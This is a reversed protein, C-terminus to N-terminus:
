HEFGENGRPNRTINDEATPVSSVQGLTSTLSPKAESSTNEGTNTPTNKTPRTKEEERQPHQPPVFSGNPVFSNDMALSKNEDFMKPMRIEPGKEGHPRPSKIKIVPPEKPNKGPDDDFPWKDPDGRPRKPKIPEKPNKPDKGTEIDIPWKKPIPDGHTPPNITIIPDKIFDIPREETPQMPHPNKRRIDPEKTVRVPREEPPQMPHPNKRSIDPEIVKTFEETSNIFEEANDNHATM